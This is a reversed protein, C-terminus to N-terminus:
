KHASNYILKNNTSVNTRSLTPLATAISQLFRKVINEADSVLMSSQEISLDSTPLSLPAMQTAVFEWCTEEPVDALSALQM